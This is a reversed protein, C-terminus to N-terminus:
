LWEELIITTLSLWWCHRYAVWKVSYSVSNIIIEDAEKIETLKQISLKYIKWFKWEEMYQSEESVATEVWIREHYKDKVLEIIVMFIDYPILNLDNLSYNQFTYWNIYAIASNIFVIIKTEDNEWLLSKLTAILEERTM